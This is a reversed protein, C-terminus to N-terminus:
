CSDWALRSWCYLSTAPEEVKTMPVASFMPLMVSFVLLVDFSVPLAHFVRNKSLQHPYSGAYGCSSIHSFEDKTWVRSNIGFMATM